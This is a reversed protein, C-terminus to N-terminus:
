QGMEARAHIEVTGQPLDTVVQFSREQTGAVPGNLSITLVHQPAKGPTEDHVSWQSDVGKVDLISFPTTGHIIVKRQVRQGATAPELKFSAPTVTLLPEVVVRVPLRIREMWPHNTHLWVETFWKGV